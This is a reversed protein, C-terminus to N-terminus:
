ASRASRSSCRARALPPARRTASSSRAPTARVTACSCPACRRPTITPPQSTHPLRTFVSDQTYRRKYSAAHSLDGGAGDRSVSGALCSLSNRRRPVPAAQTYALGLTGSYICSRPNSSHDPRGLGTVSCLTPYARGRFVQRARDLALYAQISGPLCACLCLFGVPLTMFRMGLLRRHTARQSVQSNRGSPRTPPVDSATCVGQPADFSHSCTRLLAFTYSADCGTLRV